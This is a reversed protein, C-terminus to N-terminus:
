IFNMIIIMIIIVHCFKEAGYIQSEAGYLNGKVFNLYM